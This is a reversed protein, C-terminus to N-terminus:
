NGRKTCYTLSIESLKLGKGFLDAASSKSLMTSSTWKDQCWDITISIGLGQAGLLAAMEVIKFTKPIYRGHFLGMVVRVSASVRGCCLGSPKM